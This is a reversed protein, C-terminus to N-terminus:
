KCPFAEIFANITIAFDPEHQMESHDKLYNVVIRAAQGNTIMSNPTCFLANKRLSVEYMKNLNIVGQLLGFCYMSNGADVGGQVDATLKKGDMINVAVSCQSLLNNGDDALGLNSLFFVLAAILLFINKKM